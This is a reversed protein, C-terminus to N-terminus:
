LNEHYKFSELCYPSAFLSLVKLRSFPINQSPVNVCALYGPFYKKRSYIPFAEILILFYIIVLLKPTVQFIKRRIQCTPISSSNVKLVSELGPTQQKRM